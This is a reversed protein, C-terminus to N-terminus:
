GGSTFNVGQAPLGQIGSTYARNSYVPRTLWPRAKMQPGGQGLNATVPSVKFTYGLNRPYGAQYIADNFQGSWQYSLIPQFRTSEVSGTGTERFWPKIQAGRSYLWRMGLMRPMRSVFTSHQNLMEGPLRPTAWAPRTHMPLQGFVEGGPPPPHRPQYAAISYRLSTFANARSVRRM